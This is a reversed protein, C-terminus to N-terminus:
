REVKLVPIAEKKVDNGICVFYMLSYMGSIYAKGAAQLAM